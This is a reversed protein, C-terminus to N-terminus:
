HCEKDLLNANVRGKDLQGWMGLKFHSSPLLIIFYYCKYITIAIIIFFIDVKKEKMQEFLM